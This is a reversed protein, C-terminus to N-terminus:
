LGLDKPHIRVTKGLRTVPLVDDKIMRRLHRESIRTRVAAEKVTLLRVEETEPPAAAIQKARTNKRAPAKM